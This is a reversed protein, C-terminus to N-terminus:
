IIIECQSRNPCWYSYDGNSHKAKYIYKKNDIIINNTPFNYQKNEKKFM